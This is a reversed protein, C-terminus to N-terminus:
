TLVKRQASIKKKCNATCSCVSHLESHDTQPTHTGVHHPAQLFVAVGANHIVAARIANLLKGTFAGGAGARNIIEHLLQLLRAGDPQHNGRGDDVCRDTFQNRFERGAVDQNVAAVGIVDVVNAAGFFQLGLPNVIDIDAGAAADPSEVAAIALHDAAFVFHNLVEVRNELRQRGAAAVDVASGAAFLGGACGFFAIQMAAGVAGAVEYFHDVVSNFVAQHRRVVCAEVNQFVSVRSFFM